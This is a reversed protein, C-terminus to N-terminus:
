WDTRRPSESAAERARRVSWRLRDVDMGGILALAGLGASVLPPLDLSMRGLYDAALSQLSGWRPAELPEILGDATGQDMRPV